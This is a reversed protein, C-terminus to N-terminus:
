KTLMVPCPSEQVIRHAISGLLVRKAGTYGHSGIILLDAESHKLFNLIKEVPNGEEVVKRLEIDKVDEGIWKTLHDQVEQMMKDHDYLDNKAVVSMGFSLAPFIVSEPIIYLVTLKSGLKKALQIAYPLATKAADSFDTTLVIREMKTM